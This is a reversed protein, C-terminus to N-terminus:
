GVDRDRYERQCKRVERYVAEFAEREKMQQRWWQVHGAKAYHGSSM